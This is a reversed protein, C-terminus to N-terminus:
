TANQMAARFPALRANIQDCCRIVCYACCESSALRRQFCNPTAFNHCPIISVTEVPVKFESAAVQAMKTFIGQRIEIGGINIIM